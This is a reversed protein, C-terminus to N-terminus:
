TQLPLPGQMLTINQILQQMGLRTLYKTILYRKTTPQASYDPGHQTSFTFM